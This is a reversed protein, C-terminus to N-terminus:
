NPSNSQSYRINNFSGKSLNLLNDVALKSANDDVKPSNSERFTEIGNIVDVFM